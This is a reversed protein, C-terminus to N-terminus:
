GLRTLDIQVPLTQTTFDTMPIVILTTSQTEPALTVQWTASGDSITRTINVVGDAGEELLLVHVPQELVNDVRVWGEAQWIDNEITEVDDRYDLAPLAFDDLAMGAETVADDTVMEFRVQVIQGIYANLDLSADQWGESSGTFGVGYARGFPNSDTMLSTTIPQWTAGDDTSINIYGYDWDTEIDYWLRYSLTADASAPVDRLDFTGTLRPNSQDARHSYWMWRGSSASTPILDIQPAHNLDIQLTDGAEVAHVPIYHAAFQEAQLTISAETNQMQMTAQVAPAIFNVGQWIDSTYGYPSDPSTQRLWNALAWDEMFSAVDSETCGAIVQAVPALSNGQAQSLASVGGDLGCREYVYGVFLMSAGYHAGRAADMRWTNIQTNPRAMFANLAWQNGVLGLYQESFMSFGEDLWAPTNARVRYRIMHQMEHAVISLTAQNNLDDGVMNRNIVLMEHENSQPVVSAPYLNQSTFYAGTSSGVRDSFVIYLREDGDIGPTPESGWLSRLPALVEDDFREAFLQASARNIDAYSDVWVYAFDSIAVLEAETSQISTGTDIINFDQREGLRRPIAYPPTYDDDTIGLFRGALDARDAPPIIATALASQTSPDAPREGIHNDIAHSLPAIGMLMLLGTIVVMRWVSKGLTYQSTASKLSKM